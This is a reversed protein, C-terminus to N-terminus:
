NEWAGSANTKSVLFNTDPGSTTEKRRLVDNDSGACVAHGVRAIVGVDDRVVNGNVPDNNYGTITGGTKTFSTPVNRQNNHIFVGGGKKCATNGTITGDVMSFTGGYAGGADGNVYV